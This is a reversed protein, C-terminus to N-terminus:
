PEVRRFPRGLADVPSHRRGATSGIGESARTRLEPEFETVAEVFRGATMRGTAGVCPCPALKFVM